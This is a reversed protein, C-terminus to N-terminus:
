GDVHLLLPEPQNKVRSAEVTVVPLSPVPVHRAHDQRLLRKRRLLIRQEWQKVAFIVVDSSNYGNTGGYDLTLRCYAVRKANTCLKGYKRPPDGCDAYFKFKSSLM